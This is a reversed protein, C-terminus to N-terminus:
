RSVAISEVPVHVGPVPQVPVPTPVEVTVAGLVLVPNLGQLPKLELEAQLAAAFLPVADETLLKV